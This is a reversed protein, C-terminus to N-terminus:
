SFTKAQSHSLIEQLKAALNFEEEEVARELQNQINKLYSKEDLDGIEYGFVHHTSLVFSVEICWNTGNPYEVDEFSHGDFSQIIEWCPFVCYALKKKYVLYLLKALYDKAVEPTIEKPWESLLRESEVEDPIYEHLRSYDELMEESKEFLIIAHSIKGWDHQDLLEKISDVVLRPFSKDIDLFKM